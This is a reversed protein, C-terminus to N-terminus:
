RREQISLFKSLESVGQWSVNEIARSVNYFGLSMFAMNLFIYENTLCYYFFPVVWCSGFMFLITYGIKQGTFNLFIYAAMLILLFEIALHMAMSCLHPRSSSLVTAISNAHIYMGPMRGVPTFIFDNCDDDSRGIVVIKDKCKFKKRDIGYSRWNWLNGDEINGRIPRSSKVGAPFLAYQIRNYQSARTDRVVGGKDYLEEYIPFDEEVGQRNVTLSYTHLRENTCNFFKRELTLTPTMTPISWTLYPKEISDYKAKWREYRDVREADDQLLKQELSRLEELDGITLVMTMIPISWLIYPEGTDARNAKLYPLWFRINSRSETFMPTVEFIKKGDVLESFINEQETRDAYTMRPLLVKTNSNSDDRITKLLDYLIKDRQAGSLPVDDKDGAILREPRLDPESFVIDVVIVSAGGQYATEILDALKDRPTLGPNKLKKISQNDFDLFRIKERAIQKTEMDAAKQPLIYKDIFSDENADMRWLTYQDFYFNISDQKLRIDKLEVSFVLMISIGLIINFVFSNKAEKEHWSPDLFRKAKEIGISFTKIIIAFFVIFFALVTTVGLIIKSKKLM